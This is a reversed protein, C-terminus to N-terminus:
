PLHPWPMGLVMVVAAGCAEGEEVNELASAAQIVQIGTGKDLVLEGAQTFFCSSPVFDSCARQSVNDVKLVRLLLPYM